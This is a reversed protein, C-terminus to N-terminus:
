APYRFGQAELYSRLPALQSEYRRWREVSTAHIPRRVQDTSFTLVTGAKEFFRLCDDHWDLGAFEVIRPAWEGPAQVLKEYPVTLIRDGIVSKWHEMLQMHAIYERGYTEQSYSYAHFISMNNQYSSIFTDFPNRLSHIFRANPFCLALFGVYMFHHPMKEIIRAAPKGALVRMFELIEDATQRLQGKKLAKILPADSDGAGVQEQFYRAQLSINTLEGVPVADPHSGIVQETLTTGSRPMGVIFVPESSPNGAGKWDEFVSPVYLRKVSTLYAEHDRQPPASGLAIDRSKQWCEFAEAYSKDREHLRGLTLLVESRVAPPLKSDSLFSRLKEGVPSSAGENSIRAEYMVSKQAYPPGANAFKAIHPRVLDAQNSTLLIRCLLERCRLEDEITKSTSLAKMAAPVALDSRGLQFYCEALAEAYLAAHSGGKESAFRLLPLARDPLKMTTYTFGLYYAYNANGTELLHAKEIHPFADPLRDMEFLCRGLLFHGLANGPYDRLLERCRRELQPSSEQVALAHVRRKFDALQQPSLPVAAPGPQGSM